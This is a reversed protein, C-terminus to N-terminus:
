GNHVGALASEIRSLKRFTRLFAIDGCGREVVVSEGVRIYGVWNDSCKIVRIIFDKDEVFCYFAGVEVLM